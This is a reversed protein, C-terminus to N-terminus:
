RRPEGSDAAVLAVTKAAANLPQPQLHRNIVAASLAAVVMVGALLGFFVWTDDSLTLVVGGVLTTIIGALRGFSLSIGMGTARHSATYAHAAVTYLATITMAVGAGALSAVVLLPWTAEWGDGTTANITWPMLVIAITASAAALLITRRTGIWNIVWGALVSGVVSIMNFALSARLASELSLGAGRLVVPFWGLFAFVVFQAAFFGLWCGVNVRKNRSALVERLPSNSAGRQEAELSIAEGDFKEGVARELSRLADENRGRRLLYGPSEPVIARFIVLLILTAIGCIIFTARWGLSPILLLALASGAMGGVPSGITMLGIARPRARQSLFESVLAFVNPTAAGFGLGSILRLIAMSPVNDRASAAITAIGFLIVSLITIRRKGWRDGLAGGATTGITMGVLAASLAIGLEAQTINWESLIVPAAFSLLQLDLGDLILILLALGVIFIQIRTTPRSDLVDSVKM